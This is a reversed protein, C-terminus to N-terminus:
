TENRTRETDKRNLFLFLYVIFAHGKKLYRLVVNAYALHALTAKSM